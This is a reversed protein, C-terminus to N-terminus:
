RRTAPKRSRRPAIPGDSAHAARRSGTLVRGDHRVVDLLKLGERTLVFERVQNSHAMGRSKVVDITRTREGNVELNRLV